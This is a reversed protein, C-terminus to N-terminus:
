ELVFERTVEEGKPTTWTIRYTGKFGRWNVNGKRDPQLEVNTRWEHNILQDLAFYAMKPTMDRRFLGSINPEGPAGCNDVINWWTIGEMSPLSFWIRYLNRSIIAQIMEGQMGEGASTITIESLYVPIGFQGLKEFYPRITDPDVLKSAPNLHKGAAIDLCQQPDFLHMQSGIVDIKAGRDLMHRIQNIYADNVAYDNINLLSGWTNCEQAVKFSKFVYDAHMIGYRSKCMPLSPDLVGKGFDAASENVVDWSDIKGEYRKMIQRIRRDTYYEQNALYTPVTAAIQEPTMNKYSDVPKANSGFVQLDLTDIAAREADPINEYQLWEPFHWKRNGWVLPHGHVMVDHDECWQVIQDVPPRRWHPQMMPNSAVSWWWETDVSTTEFRPLGPKREFNKWYFPVTARNFLGGFLERYRANSEKKGLQNWNFASAGFVFESKVQEVKVLTGKKIKGVQFSGDAKRYLDIDKDIREQEQDNWIQWYEKSMFNEVDESARTPIKKQQAVSPVVLMLAFVFLTLRKM